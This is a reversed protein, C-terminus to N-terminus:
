VKRELMPWGKQFEGIGLAAERILRAETEADLPYQDRMSEIIEAINEAADKPTGDRWFYEGPVPRYNECCKDLNWNGHQMTGIDCKVCGCSFPTVGDRSNWIVEVHGCQECEYMMLAYAEAHNM